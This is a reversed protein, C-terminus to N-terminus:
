QQSFLRSSRDGSKALRRIEYAERTYVPILNNVREILQTSERFLGFGLLPAAEIKNRLDFHPIFVDIGFPEYTQELATVACTTLIIGENYGVFAEAFPFQSLWKGEREHLVLMWGIDDHALAFLDNLQATLKVGAIPTDMQRIAGTGFSSTWKIFDVISIIKNAILYFDTKTKM